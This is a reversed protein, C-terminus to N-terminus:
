SEGRLIDAQWGRVSAVRAAPSTERYPLYEGMIDERVVVIRGYHAIADDVIGPGQSGYVPRDSDVILISRM